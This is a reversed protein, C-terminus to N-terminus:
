EFTQCIGTDAVTIVADQEQWRCSLTISGKPTHKAANGIVNILIQMLRASDAVVPAIGRPIDVCFLTDATLLPAALVAIMQAMKSVNIEELALVIEEHAPTLSKDLINSVLKSLRWGTARITDLIDHQLRTFQRDDSGALLSDTLGIIANLPTRLEHALAAFYFDKRKDRDRSGEMQFDFDRVVEELRVIGRHAAYVPSIVGHVIAEGMCCKAFVDSVLILCDFVIPSALKLKQLLFIIGFANWVVVLVTRLHRVATQAGPLNKYAQIVNSIMQLQLHGQCVFCAYSACFWIWMSPSPSVDAVFGTILMLFNSALAAILKSRGLSGCRWIAIIMCTTSFCWTLYRMPYVPGDSSPSSIVPALKLAMTAANGFGFVCTALPLLAAEAATTDCTIYAQSMSTIACMLFAVMGAIGLQVGAAEVDSGSIGPTSNVHTCLFTAAIAYLSIWWLTFERASIFSVFVDASARGFLGLPSRSM